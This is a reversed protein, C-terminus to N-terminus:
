SNEVNPGGKARSRARGVERAAPAPADIRSAPPRLDEVIHPAHLLFVEISVIQVPQVPVRHVVAVARQQRMDAPALIQILQQHLHDGLQPYAMVADSTAIDVLAIAGLLDSSCVDSSWDSIRM